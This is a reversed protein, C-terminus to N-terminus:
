VYPIANKQTRTKSNVKKAVNKKKLKTFGAKIDGTSLDSLPLLGHIPSRVVAM